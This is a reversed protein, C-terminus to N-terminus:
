STNAYIIIKNFKKQNCNGCLPQINSIDNSGGKSIPVIHDRTLKIEPQGRLCGRCTFNFVKKLADWEENTHKGGNGNKRARRASNGDIGGKWNWHKDGRIKEYVVGKNWPINGMLSLANAEGIKRKTEDSLIRGTSSPPKIGLIRRTISMKQKSLFSHRFIGYKGKNAPIDGKKFRSSSLSGFKNGKQFAM